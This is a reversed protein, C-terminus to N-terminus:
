LSSRVRGILASSVSDGVAREADHESDERAAGYAKKTEEEGETGEREVM